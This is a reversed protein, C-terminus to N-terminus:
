VEPTQGQHTLSTQTKPLSELPLPQHNFSPRMINQYAPDQRPAHGSADTPEKTKLCGTQQHTGLERRIPQKGQPMGSSYGRWPSTPGQQWFLARWSLELQNINGWYRWWWTRM